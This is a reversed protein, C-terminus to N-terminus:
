LIAIEIDTVFPLSKLKSYLSLTDDKPHASFRITIENINDRKPHSIEKITISETIFNNNNLYEIVQEINSSDELRLVLNVEQMCYHHILQSDWSSVENKINTSLM